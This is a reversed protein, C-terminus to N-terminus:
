PLSVKNVAVATPAVKRADDMLDEGALETNDLEEDGAIGSDGSNCSVRAM